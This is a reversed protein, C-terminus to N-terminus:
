WMATGCGLSLHRPEFGYGEAWKQAHTHATLHFVGCLGCAHIRECSRDSHTWYEMHKPLEGLTASVLLRLSRPFALMKARELTSRVFFLKRCFFGLCGLSFRCVYSFYFWYFFSYRVHCSSPLLVLPLFGSKLVRGSCVMMCGSGLKLSTRIGHAMGSPFPHSSGCFTLSHM